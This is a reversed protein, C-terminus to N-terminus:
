YDYGHVGFGFFSNDDAYGFSFGFGSYGGQHHYYGNSYGYYGSYHDAWPVLQDWGWPQYMAGSAYGYPSYFYGSYEQAQKQKEFEMQEQQLIWQNKADIDKNTSERALLQQEVSPISPGAISEGVPSWGPPPQPVSRKAGEHLQIYDERASKM